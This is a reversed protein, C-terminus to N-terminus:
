LPKKQYFYHCTDEREGQASKIKYTKNPVNGVVEIMELRSSLPITLNNEYLSKGYGKDESNVKDMHKGIRSYVKKANSNYLPPLQCPVTQSSCPLLTVTDKIRQEKELLKGASVM